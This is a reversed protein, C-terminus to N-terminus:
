IFSFHLMLFKIKKGSFNKGTSPIKMLENAKKDTKEDVTEKSIIAQPKEFAAGLHIWNDSLSSWM